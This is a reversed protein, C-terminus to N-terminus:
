ITRSAGVRTDALNLNSLCSEVKGMQQGSRNCALEDCVSLCRVLLKYYTPFEDNGWTMVGLVLLLPLSPGVGLGLNWAAVSSEQM